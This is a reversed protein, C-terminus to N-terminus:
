ENATRPWTVAYWVILATLVSEAIALFLYFARWPAISTIAILVTVLTFFLGTVINLIRSISPKLLISLFVMWAPIGLAVTAVFLKLPSDLLNEGSVLGEVKAPVYLEFYDGYLYCLTVSTWLAALLVKTNVKVDEFVHKKEM